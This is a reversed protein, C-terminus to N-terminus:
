KLHRNCEMDFWMAFFLSQLGTIGCFMLALANVKPIFGFSLLYYFMRVFLPVCMLLLCLALAYFFVLPHFDRIVYKEKLRWLFWKFLLWPLTFMLRFPRIGSEEGIGYIPRVPVDRVKMNCINMQVLLHNPMGYRPYINDLDLTHLARKGIATYGCQFDAVHWYGSAIKTLLSLAANGLYRWHPIMKWADGTILRNGKAYDIQEDIIPDLLAPMDAPDMQADGAMVVAIDAGAKKAWKYGSSIAGGVGQNVTHRILHLRDRWTSEGQLREVVQSTADKSCDDVVVIWDVYDPMTEIVRAILREENYAPVVVAVKRGRYM